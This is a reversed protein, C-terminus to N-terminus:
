QGRRPNSWQRRPHPYIRGIIEKKKDLEKKRSNLYKELQGWNFGQQRCGYVGKLGIEEDTGSSYFPKDYGLDGSNFDVLYASDVGGKLDSDFTIKENQIENRLVFLYLNSIRLDIPYETIGNFQSWYFIRITSLNNIGFFSKTIVVRAENVIYGHHIRVESLKIVRGIFASKGAKIAHRVDICPPESALLKSPYLLILTTIVINLINNIKNRMWFRERELYFIKTDGLIELSSNCGLIQDISLIIKLIPNKNQVM